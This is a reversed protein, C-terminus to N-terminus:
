AAGKILRLKPRKFTAHADSVIQLRGQDEQLRHENVAITRTLNSVAVLLIDELMYRPATPHKEKFAKEIAHFNQYKNQWDYQIDSAFKRVLKRYTKTKRNYSM